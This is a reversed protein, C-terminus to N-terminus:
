LMKSYNGYHTTAMSTHAIISRILAICHLDTPKVSNIVLEPQRSFTLFLAVPSHNVPMGLLIIIGTVRSFPDYIAKVLYRQNYRHLSLYTRSRKIVYSLCLARESQDFIKQIIARLGMSFQLM